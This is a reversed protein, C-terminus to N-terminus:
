PSGENSGIPPHVGPLKGRSPEKWIGIISNKEPSLETSPIDGVRSSLKASPNVRM